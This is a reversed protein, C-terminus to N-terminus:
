DLSRLHEVIDNPLLCRKTQTRELATDVQGNDWRLSDKNIKRVQKDLLTSTMNRLCCHM